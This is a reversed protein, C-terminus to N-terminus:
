EDPELTIIPMNPEVLDGPAYHISKVFGNTLSKIENEMKMSEVIILAQGIEVKDGEGVLLKVVKGPMPTKIEDKAGFELGDASFKKADNTAKGLEVVRGAIYVYVFDDSEAVHVTRSIGDISISFCNSSIRALNLLYKNDGVEAKHASVKPNDSDANAIKVIHNESQYIFEREMAAGRHQERDLKGIGSRM